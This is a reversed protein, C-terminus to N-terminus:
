KLFLMWYKMNLPKSLSTLDRQLNNSKTYSVNIRMNQYANNVVGGVCTFIRSANMNEIEITIITDKSFM